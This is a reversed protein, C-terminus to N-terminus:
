MCVANQCVDWGRVRIRLDLTGRSVYEIPDGYVGAVTLGTSEPAGSFKNGFESVPSSIALVEGVVASSSLASDSVLFDRFLYGIAV